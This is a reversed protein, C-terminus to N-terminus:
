GSWMDYGVGSTAKSLGNSTCRDNTSGNLRSQSAPTSEVGSNASTEGVILSM